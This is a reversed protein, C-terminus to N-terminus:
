KTSEGDNINGFKSIDKDSTGMHIPRQSWHLDYFNVCGNCCNYRKGSNIEYNPDDIRWKAIGSGCGHCILHTKGSLKLFSEIIVWKSKSYWRPLFNIRKITSSTFNSRKISYKISINNNYDMYPISISFSRNKHSIKLSPINKFDEFMEDIEIKM